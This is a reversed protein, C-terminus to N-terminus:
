FTHQIDSPESVRKRTTPPPSAPSLKAKFAASMPPTRTRQLPERMSDLLLWEKARGFQLEISWRGRFLEVLRELSM